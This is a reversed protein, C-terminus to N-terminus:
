GPCAGFALLAPTRAGFPRSAITPTDCSVEVVQHLIPGNKTRTVVAELRTATWAIWSRARGCTVPAYERGMKYVEEMNSVHLTGASVRCAPAVKALAAATKERNHNDANFLREVTADDWAPTDEVVEVVVHRTALFKTYDGDAPTKRREYEEVSALAALETERAITARTSLWTKAHAQSRFLGAVITIGRRETITPLEHGDLAFPYGEALGLTKAKALLAPAPKTARLLLAVKPPDREDCPVGLYPEFGCLGAPMPGDDEIAVPMKSRMDSRPKATCGIAGIAILLVCARAFSVAREVSRTAHENRENSRTM